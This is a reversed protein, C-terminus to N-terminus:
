SLFIHADKKFVTLAESQTFGESEVEKQQYYEYKWV